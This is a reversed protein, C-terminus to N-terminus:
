RLSQYCGQRDQRLLPWVRPSLIDITKAIIEFVLVVPVKLYFKFLRIVYLPPRDIDAVCLPPRYVDASGLLPKYVDATTLSKLSTYLTRDQILFLSSFIKNFNQKVM